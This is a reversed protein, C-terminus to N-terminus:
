REFLIIAILYWELLALRGGVKKARQLDPDEPKFLGPLNESAGVVSTRGKAREKAREKATKGVGPRKIALYVSFFRCHMKFITKLALAGADAYSFDHLRRKSAM